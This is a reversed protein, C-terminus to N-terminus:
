AGGDAAAGPEAEAAEEVALRDDVRKYDAWAALPSDGLDDVDFDDPWKMDWRVVRGPMHRKFAYLRKCQDDGFLLCTQFFATQAPDMVGDTRYHVNTDVLSGGCHLNTEGRLPALPPAGRKGVHVWRVDFVAGPATPCRSVWNPRPVSSIPSRARRGSSRM